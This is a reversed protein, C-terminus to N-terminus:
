NHQFVSICIVIIILLLLVSINQDFLGIWDFLSKNRSVITQANLNYPILDNIEDNTIDLKNFDFVNIEFGDIQDRNWDNLKQIIKLDCVAYREDFSAM